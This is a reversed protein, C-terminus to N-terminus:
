PSETTCIHLRTCRCCSRTTQAKTPLWRSPNKSGVPMSNDRAEISHLNHKEHARVNMETQDIESVFATSNPLMSPAGSMAVKPRKAPAKRNSDRSLSPKSSDSNISTFKGTGTYKDEVPTLTISPCFAPHIVLNSTRFFVVSSSLSENTSTHDRVVRPSLSECDIPSLMVWNWGVKCHTGSKATCDSRISTQQM